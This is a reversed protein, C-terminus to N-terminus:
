MVKIKCLKSCGQGRNKPKCKFLVTKHDLNTHKHDCYWQFKEVSAECQAEFRRLKSRLEKGRKSMTM